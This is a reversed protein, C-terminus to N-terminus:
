MCTFNGADDTSGSGNYTALAPYPCLPRSQTGGATITSAKTALIRDPAVGNEVWNVVAPFLNQPQPGVGNGCHAVGPAMFHRYFQQTKAYGGGLFNTVTDYYSISDQSMINTDAFGQWMVIKGGGDRYASLDPSMTSTIPPMEMTRITDKLFGQINGYNLTHWDWTPDFYVWYQGQATAISLPTTGALATFGAGRELGPWLPVGQLNTPGNWIKLIAGAEAPSLCTNDTKACSPNTITSDVVPNYTCKRPDTLVGDVVGDLADCAAIAANTALTQKAAAIPGGTDNFMAVAPWIQGFGLKDFYVAPAGALIGNYDHPYNQAMSLGQRGGTSCGNWYSYVPQGGYFAQALQKGVSAMLHLSRYAFDIQLQTDPKGPNTANNGVCNNICGFTGSGGTHGTDTEVGMYGTSTAATPAGVSGAFGGGGISQLRGNWNGGTPMGFWINIAPKVVVKVLCYPIGGSTGTTVSTITVSTDNPPVTTPLTPIDSVLTATGIGASDCTTVPSITGVQAHAAPAFLAAIALSVAARRCTCGISNFFSTRSTGTKSNM